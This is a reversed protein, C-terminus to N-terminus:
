NSDSSNFMCRKTFTISSSTNQSYRHTWCVATMSSTVLPLTNLTCHKSAMSKKTDFFCHYSSQFLFWRTTRYRKTLQKRPHDKASPCVRTTMTFWFSQVRGKQICSQLSWPTPQQVTKRKKNAKYDVHEKSSLQELGLNEPYNITIRSNAGSVQIVTKRHFIPRNIFRTIYGSIYVNFFRKRLFPNELCSLCHFNQNFFILVSSIHMRLDIYSCTEYSIRVTSFTLRHKTYRPTNKNQKNSLEKIIEASDAPKESDWHCRLKLICRTQPLRLWM